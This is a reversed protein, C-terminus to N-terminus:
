PRAVLIPLVDEATIGRAIFAQGAGKLLIFTLKGDQAKKDHLMHSLLKEASVTACPTDTISAPLGIAKFHAALEDGLAPSCLGLHASFRCALVMGVAVAEGHLLGAGYGAEAELAHGFTHGLNLLARDGTEHEDRTVIAAKARCSTAIAYDRLSPEGGTLGKGHELCWRYFPEDNILGYKIIEAYGALMERKPLTDLVQPDIVVARPQHFAGILNKGKRSNIGTKGGVSSDVQALLTTPVQVFDVGRLITAAAFGALDGVVGGGLALITVKRDLARELLAEIVAEFSALSKTHEGPEITIPAALQLGAGTLSKQVTELHLRAVSRDTIIIIRNGHLSPAIVDGLKHLLGAGIHITYSRGALAVDVTTTM